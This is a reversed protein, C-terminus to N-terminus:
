RRSGSAARRNLVRELADLRRNWAARNREVWRRADDLGDTTLTCTRVRRDQRSRAIHVLGADALVALHKSIAALTVPFRASLASITAPGRELRRLLDRRTADSLAFFVRDLQPAPTTV